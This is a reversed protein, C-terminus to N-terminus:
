FKDEFCVLDGPLLIGSGCPKSESSTTMIGDVRCPFRAPLALAAKERAAQQNKPTQSCLNRPQPPPLEPSPPGLSQSSIALTVWCKARVEKEFLPRDEDHVNTVPIGLSDTTCIQRPSSSHKFPKQHSLSPPMVVPGESHRVQLKEGGQFNDTTWITGLGLAM